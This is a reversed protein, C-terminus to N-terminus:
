VECKVGTDEEGKGRKGEYWDSGNRGWFRYMTPAPSRFRRAILANILNADTNEFLM